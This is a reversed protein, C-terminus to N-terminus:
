VCFDFGSKRGRFVLNLGLNEVGLSLVPFGFKRLVFRLDLRRTM